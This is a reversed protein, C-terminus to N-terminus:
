PKRAYVRVWDVDMSKGDMSEQVPGAWNIVATSFRPSTPLHANYVPKRDVIKGDFYDRWVKEHVHDGYM